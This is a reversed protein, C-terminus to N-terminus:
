ARMRRVSDILKILMASQQFSNMGHYAERFPALIEWPLNELTESKEQRKAALASNFADYQVQWRTVTPDDPLRGVYKHRSPYISGPNDACEFTFVSGPRCTPMNKPSYLHVRGENDSKVQAVWDSPTGEVRYWKQLITAKSKKSGPKGSLSKHLGTFLLTVTKSELQTAPQDV